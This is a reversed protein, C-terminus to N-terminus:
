GSLLSGLYHTKCGELVDKIQKEDCISKDTKKWDGVTPNTLLVFKTNRECLSTIATQLVNLKRRVPEIVPVIYSSDDIIDNMERLLFLEFQKGRLYPFYM